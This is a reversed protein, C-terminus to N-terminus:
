FLLNYIQIFITMIVLALLYNNTRKLRNYKTEFDDNETHM